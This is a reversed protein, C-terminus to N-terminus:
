VEKNYKSSLSKHCTPLKRRTSSNGEFYCILVVYVMVRDARWGRFYLYQFLSLLQYLTLDHHNLNNQQAFDEVSNMYM